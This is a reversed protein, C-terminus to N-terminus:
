TCSESSAFRRGCRAGPSSCRKGRLVAIAFWIFVVALWIMFVMPFHVTTLGYASIATLVFLRQAASAMIVFASRTSHRANRSM